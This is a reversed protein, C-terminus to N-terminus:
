LSSRLLGYIGKVRELSRTRIAEVRKEVLIVLIKKLVRDFNETMLDEIITVDRFVNILSIETKYRLNSVSIVQIQFNHM